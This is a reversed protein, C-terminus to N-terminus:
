PAVLLHTHGDEIIKNRIKRPMIICGKSATGPNRISDGHILFHTRGHADHDVPELRICFPGVRKSNYVEGIKWMGAPIPGVNRVSEKSPDNKGEPSGSYGRAMRDMDNFLEGTSQHYTLM